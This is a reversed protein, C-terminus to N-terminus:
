SSRNWEQQCYKEAHDGANEDGPARDQGGM